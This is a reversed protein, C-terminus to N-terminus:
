HADIDSTIAYKKVLKTIDFIDTKEKSYSSYMGHIFLLVKNAQKKRTKYITMSYIPSKATKVPEHVVQRTASDIVIFKETGYGGFFILNGLNVNSIASRINDLGYNKTVQGSYLDYQIIQGEYTDFCGALLISNQEDAIITNVTAKNSSYTTIPASSDTICEKIIKTKDISSVGIITEQNALVCFNLDTRCYYSLKTRFEPILIAKDFAKM